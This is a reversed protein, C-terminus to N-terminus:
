RFPPHGTEPGQGAGARGGAIGLKRHWDRTFEACDQPLQVMIRARETSADQGAESLEEGQACLGAIEDFGMNLAAGKLFHFEARMADPTAAAGLRQLGTTVEDLFVEIMEEFGEAGFDERLEAVREWNIM